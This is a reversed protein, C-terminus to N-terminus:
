RFLAESLPWALIGDDSPDDTLEPETRGHIAAVYLGAVLQNTAQLTAMIAARETGNDASCAGALTLKRGYVTAEVLVVVSDHRASLLRRTGLLELSVHRHDNWGVSGLLDQVAELTAAAPLERLGEESDSGERRSEVPGADGGLRVGIDLRGEEDKVVHFNLFELRPVIAEVPTHAAVLGNGSSPSPAAATAQLPASDEATPHARGGHPDGDRSETESAAERSPTSSTGPQDEEPGGVERGLLVYLEDRTLRSQAISIRDAPVSLELGSLLASTVAAHVESVPAASTSLVHVRAPMEPALLVRASVVVALSELLAEARRALEADRSLESKGLM